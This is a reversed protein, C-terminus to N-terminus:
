NNQKGEEFDLKKNIVKEEEEKKINDIDTFNTVNQDFPSKQNIQTIQSINSHTSKPHHFDKFITNSTDDKLHPTM